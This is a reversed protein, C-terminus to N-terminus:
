PSNEVLRIAHEYVKNKKVGTLQVAMAVSQKVPLQDLLIGLVRDLEADEQRSVKGSAGHILVVIEGKQQDADNAVWAVLDSLCSSRVTEFRKTLERAIVACREPGFVAVMDMLSAVIRHPTEYFILTRDDEKLRELHQIRAAKKAPLFGEFVFRDTPLGSVSLASTVASPGPVVIVPCGTELVQKVLHYGPDSILPTGADSILAISDGSKLRDILFAACKSENHEHYAMCRTSIAFHRLLVGSHRTDEAAILDVTSLTEIARASMDGLNGIPTAVVYLTGKIASM